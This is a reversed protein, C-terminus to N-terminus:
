DAKKWRISIYINIFEHYNFNNNQKDTLPNKGSNCYEWSICEDLADLDRELRNIIREEIRGKSKLKSYSPIYQAAELLAKISIIDENPKGKNLHKLHCIKKLLFFSNPFKKTDLQLITPPLKMEYSNTLAYAFKQSFSIFVTGARNLIAEEFINLKYFQQMTKGIRQEWNTRLLLLADCNKNIQKIAEGRNKLGFAVMYESVSFSVQNKVSNLSEARFNNQKAFKFYLFTLFKHVTPNKLQKNIPDNGNIYFTINTDAVNSIMIEKTGNILNKIQNNLNIAKPLKDLGMSPANNYISFLNSSSPSSDTFSTQPLLPDIAEKQNKDKM